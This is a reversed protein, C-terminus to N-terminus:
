HASTLLVFFLICLSLILYLVVQRIVFHLEHSLHFVERYINIYSAKHTALFKYVNQANNANKCIYNEQSKLLVIFKFHFRSFFSLVMCISYLDLTENNWHFSKEKEKREEHTPQLFQICKFIRLFSMAVLLSNHQLWCVYLYM